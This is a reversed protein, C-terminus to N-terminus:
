TCPACTGLKSNRAKPQLCGVVRACSSVVRHPPRSVRARVAGAAGLHFSGGRRRGQVPDDLKALLVKGEYERLVKDLVPALALCPSCWDAWIDLLIPQRHSAALVKDKFDEQMVDFIYLNHGTM